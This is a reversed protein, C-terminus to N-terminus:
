VTKERLTKVLTVTCDFILFIQIFALITYDFYPGYVFYTQYAIASILFKLVPVYLKKPITFAYLIAIIDVVFSYRERMNPLFFLILSGSLLATQILINNDIGKEYCKKLVYYMIVLLASVTFLIAPVHYLDIYCDNNLLYYMNPYNLSIGDNKGGAQGLYITLCDLLPRGAIWLPIISVFYVAPILFLEYFKIKKLFFLLIVIPAFFITQLKLAFAISFFLMGKFSDEKFFYMFSMVLFFAYISDCQGWMSSNLIVTPAFWVIAFVILPNVNEKVIKVTKATALSLLLDFIVSLLKISVLYPIPLKSIFFLAYMYLGTYNYWGDKLISFGLRSMLSTWPELYTTYDLSEYEFLFVRLLIGVFIMALFVLTDLLNFERKGMKFTINLDM